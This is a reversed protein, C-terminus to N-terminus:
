RIRAGCQQLAAIVRQWVHEVEDHELTKNDDRIEIHLTLSKEDKWEEKTFFDILTVSRILTDVGKIMDIVADATISISLIVSVDRYVAPYKPLPTFRVVPHKYNSLYDADLEFMFAAGGAASLMNMVNDQVMGAVGVCVDNHMIKASQHLSLWPFQHKDNRQWLVECQLEKFLHLLFNKGEYFDLATNQEFFIGSVSKKEVINRSDM